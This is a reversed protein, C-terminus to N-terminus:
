APCKGTAPDRNCAFSSSSQHLVWFVSSCGCNLTARYPQQQTISVPATGGCQRVATSSGCASIQTTGSPPRWFTPPTCANNAVCGLYVHTTIGAGTTRQNIPGLTVMAPGSHTNQTCQLSVTGVQTRGRCDRGAGVIIPYTVPGGKTTLKNQWGRCCAASLCACTMLTLCASLLIVHATLQCTGLAASEADIPNVGTCHALRWYIQTLQALEACQWSGAGWSCLFM